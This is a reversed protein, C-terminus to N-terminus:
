ESNRKVTQRDMPTAHWRAQFRLATESLREPRSTEVLTPIGDIRSIWIQNGKGDTAKAIVPRDRDNWDLPLVKLAADWMAQNGIRTLTVELIEIGDFAAM